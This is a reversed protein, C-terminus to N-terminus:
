AIRVAHESVQGLVIWELNVKDWDDLDQHDLDEGDSIRGSTNINMKSLSRYKRAFQFHSFLLHKHISTPNTYAIIANLFPPIPSTQKHSFREGDDKEFDGNADYSKMNKNTTAAAM